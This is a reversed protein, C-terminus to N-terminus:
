RPIKCDYDHAEWSWKEYEFDPRGNRRCSVQDSLFPCQSGNYLPNEMSKYMWKGEFINCQGRTQNIAIGEETM